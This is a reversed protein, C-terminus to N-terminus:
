YKIALKSYYEVVSTFEDAYTLTKIIHGAVTKNGLAFGTVSNEGIPTVPIIARYVSWSLTTVSNMKVYVSGEYGSGEFTPFELVIITNAGSMSEFTSTVVKVNPDDVHGLNDLAEAM